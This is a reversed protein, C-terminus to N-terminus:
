YEDEPRGFSLPKAEPRGSITPLLQRVAEETIPTVGYLASQSVYRTFGARLVKGDKMLDPVDIRIMSPFEPPNVVLWGVIRQHGFLEVLAFSTLAPTQKAEPLLALQESKNERKM